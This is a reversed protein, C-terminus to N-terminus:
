AHGVKAKEDASWDRFYRDKVQDLTRGAKLASIANIVLRTSAIRRLRNRSISSRLNGIWQILESGVEADLSAKVLSHELEVDYDIYLTSLVFRDLTAADLQNRGVYQHDGGRGFTNAAGLIFTREHRKHVVGDTTVLVGNALAANVAVMVNADAADLEDLLFVGGQEYLKVFRGPKFVWAGTADPLTRGLLHTETIGASLSLFGFELDLAQALSKALTTKGSGAPGVMLINRHGENVLEILEDFQRHPREDLKRITGDPLHVEIPRPLTAAALREDVIRRVMDADVQTHLHEQVADALLEFIRAHGNKSTCEAQMSLAGKPALPRSTEADGAWETERISGIPREM